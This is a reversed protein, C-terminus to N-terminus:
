ASADGAELGGHFVCLPDSAVEFSRCLSPRHQYITCRGDAGLKPCSYLSTEYQEGGPATFTELTELHRFPLGKQRVTHNPFRSWTTFSVAEGGEKITSLFLRKCCQGPAPCQDCLSV